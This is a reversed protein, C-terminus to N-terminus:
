GGLIGHEGIDNYDNVERDDHEDRSAQRQNIDARSQAPRPNSPPAPSGQVESCDQNDGRFGQQPDGTREGDPFVGQPLSLGTRAENFSPDIRDQKVIERPHTKM